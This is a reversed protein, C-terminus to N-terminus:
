RPGGEDAPPVPMVEFGRQESRRRRLLATLVIGITVGVVFVILMIALPLLASRM